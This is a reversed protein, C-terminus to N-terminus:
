GRRLEAMDIFNRFGIRLHILGVFQVTIGLPSNLFSTVAFLGIKLGGGGKDSNTVLKPVRGGGWTM